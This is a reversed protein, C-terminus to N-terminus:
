LLTTVTPANPPTPTPPPQQSRRPSQLAQYNGGGGQMWRLWAPRDDEGGRGDSTTQVAPEGAAAGAGSATGNAGAGDGGMAALLDDDDVGRTRQSHNHDALAAAAKSISEADVHDSTKKESAAGATAFDAGFIGVTSVGMQGMQRALAELDMKSPLRLNLGGKTKNAGGRDTVVWGSDTGRSIRWLSVLCLWCTFLLYIQGFMVFIAVFLIRWPKRWEYLTANIVVVLFITMFCLWQYQALLRTNGKLLPHTEPPTGVHMPDSFTGSVGKIPVQWVAMFPVGFVTILSLTLLLWRMPLIYYLSLKRCPHLPARSIRRFHQMTVQDWGIAWRMRQKYLASFSAPPLEGSRAEPCFRIKATGSLLTRASLEIDETQVDHRFVQRKLVDTEWLANSGGFFGTGSAAQQAPFIVFHTVFFEANIIMALLSNTVRLYTSGQVCSCKHVQMFSTLTLLSGPDPHHDADYIVVNESTVDKMAANLNHAKSTSHEVRMIVLEHEGTGSPNPYLSGDLTALEDEIPLPKPTNYCVVLRFPKPYRLKTLIHDLTQRILQQENPMYCPVLITLTPARRPDELWEDSSWSSLAPDFIRKVLAGAAPVASITGAANCLLLVVFLIWQLWDMDWCSPGSVFVCFIPGKPWEIGTGAYPGTVWAGVLLLSQVFMMTIGSMVSSCPHMRCSFYLWMIFMLVFMFLLDFISAAPGPFFGVFTQNQEWPRIVVQGPPPPPMPFMGVTIVPQAGEYSDALARWSM